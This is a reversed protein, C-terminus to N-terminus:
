AQLLGRVMRARIGGHRLVEGLRMVMVPELTIAQQVFAPDAEVLRRVTRPDLVSDRMAAAFVKIADRSADDAPAAVAVQKTGKAAQRERKRRQRLAEASAKTRLYAKVPVVGGRALRDDDLADDVLVSSPGMAEAEEITEAIHLPLNASTDDAAGPTSMTGLELHMEATVTSNM